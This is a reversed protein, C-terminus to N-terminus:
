DFHRYSQCRSEWGEVGQLGLTATIEGIKTFRLALKKEMAKLLYFKAQPLTWCLEFDDGGSLALCWQNTQKLHKQMAESLPIKSLDLNAGVKSAKLIHGLDQLLGDSIDICANANKLLARGLEVRPYPRNFRLLAQSNPTINQQIQWWALASEGLNHSVFIGDGVQANSRKLAQNKLVLGTANITISLAGRTTDGGVLRISFEDALQKLANSFDQLWIPKVSPLTLALTFYYPKAGMAALDSLSVALSKYAIDAPSTDEPFHVGAILTDVTNALQYESCVDVLACDDGIGFGWDFYRNILEFENV